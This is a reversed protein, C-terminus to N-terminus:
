VELARAAHKETMLERIELRGMSHRLWLASLLEVFLFHFFTQLISQGWFAGGPCSDKFFASCLMTYLIMGPLVGIIFCGAGIIFFEGLLLCSLRSKDMGLLSYGALEVSRQKLMFSNIYGVLVVLIVAILFPLAATQFGDQRSGAIAMCDAAEMIALLIIMTTIYLLYNNVSRKANRFSLKLYM